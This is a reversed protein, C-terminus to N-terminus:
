FPTKYRVNTAIALREAYNTTSLTKHPFGQNLLLEFDAGDKM